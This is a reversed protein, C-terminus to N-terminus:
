SYLLQYVLWIIVILAIGFIKPDIYENIKDYLGTNTNIIESPEASTSKITDSVEKKKIKLINIKEHISAADNNLIDNKFSAATNKLASITESNDLTTDTEIPIPELIPDDLDPIEQNHEELFKNEVDLKANDASEKEKLLDELCKDKLYVDKYIPEGNKDKNYCGNHVICPDDENTVPCQKICDKFLNSTGFSDCKTDTRKNLREADEDILESQQGAVVALSGSVLGVTAISKKHKMIGQKLKGLRSAQDSAADTGATTGAGGVTKRINLRSTAGSLARSLKNFM